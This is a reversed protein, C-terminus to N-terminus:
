SQKTVVLFQTEIMCKDLTKKSAIFIIKEITTTKVIVQTHWINTVLITM